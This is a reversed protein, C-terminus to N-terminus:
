AISTHSRDKTTGKQVPGTIPSAIRIADDRFLKQFAAKDDLTGGFVVGHHSPRPRGELLHGLDSNPKPCCARRVAQGAAFLHPRRCYPCRKVIWSRELDPRDEVISPGISHALLTPLHAPIHSPHPLVSKSMNFM